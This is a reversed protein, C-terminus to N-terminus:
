TMPDYPGLLNIPSKYIETNTVELGKKFSMKVTDVM